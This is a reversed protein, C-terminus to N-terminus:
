RLEIGSDNHGANGLVSRGLPEYPRRPTSDPSRSRSSAPTGLNSSATSDGRHHQFGQFKAVRPSLRSEDSSDSLDSTPRGFYSANNFQSLDTQSNNNSHSFTLIPVPTHSGRPTTPRSGNWELGKFPAPIVSSDIRLPAPSQSRSGAPSLAPIPRTPLKLSSQSGNSHQGLRPVDLSGRRSPTTSGSRSHSKMNGLGPRLTGMAPSVPRSCPQAVGGYYGHELARVGFLDGEEMERKVLTHEDELASNKSAELDAIIKAEKKKVIAVKILAATITIVILGALVLSFKLGLELNGWWNSM